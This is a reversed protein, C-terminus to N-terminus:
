METLIDIHILNLGHKMIKRVINCLTLRFDRISEKEKLIPCDHYFNNYLQALELLYRCLIHPKLSTYSTYLCAPYKTLHIILNRESETIDKSCKPNDWSNSKQESPIYPVNIGQEIGKTFISCIRAYVYLLYAGTEGEFSISEELDFVFDRTYEYKLIFFRLAAIAIKQARFDSETESLNPYRNKVEKLSLQKIDEVVNDADVIVGERSKMKGTTLYIMGYSYHINKASFGIRNLLEFLIRLQMNQENGIVYLSTDYNYDKMKQVALYLDQTIYLTTGDRRLLVKEKPLGKKNFQAVIAGDELQTFQEKELGDIVIDRGKDYIDSELYIKEHNLDFIKYTEEFGKQAWANMRKWLKRIEPDGNEWKILMENLKGTLKGYKSEAIVEELHQIKKTDQGKLPKKKESELQQIENQVEKRLKAEYKGYTVYYNGVFHDSKVGRKNPTSGKGWRKYALMSKCIHVGKNNLLNVQHVQNGAFTNISSLTQGLIINRIHGLHLPKNTNQSPFEVVVSLPKEKPFNSHAFADLDKEIQPYIQALISIAALSFNIYPGTRSISQVFPYSFLNQRIEAELEEAVLNGDKKLHDRLAFANLSWDAKIGKKPEKILYILKDVPIKTINSLLSALELQYDM